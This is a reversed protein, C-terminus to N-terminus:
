RGHHANTYADIIGDILNNSKESTTTRNESEFTQITRKVGEAFPIVARFDPVASKIKSNDFVLSYAKDGLLSAGSHQDMCNIFDSPIHIFNPEVGAADAMATYIQNWTLVEDSTIHYAEGIANANGLLGTFGRAFDASHTMTWLSLGDGHVIIKRGTKMRDIVTYDHGGLACPLWRDSYTFSPRVITVPFGKERILELARAESAIKKRAYEWFPNCLPTSETIIYNLPPKQYCSASSIFIYQSTKGNFIAFDADIDEPSYGIWNVVCDFKYPKVAAAYEALNIVDAHLQIVGAPLDPKRNGRNLLFMEINREAALRVCDTSINGTGGIFLVKM